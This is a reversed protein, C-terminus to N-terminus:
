LLIYGPRQCASTEPKPYATRWSRPASLRSIKERPSILHTYSVPYVKVPDDINVGESPPAEEEEESAATVPISNLDLDIDQELDEIIEIQRKYVDLMM